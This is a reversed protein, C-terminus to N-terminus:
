NQLDFILIISKTYLKLLYKKLLILVILITLYSNYLFIELTLM